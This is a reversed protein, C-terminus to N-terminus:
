ATIKGPIENAREEIMGIEHAVITATVSGIKETAIEPVIMEIRTGAVISAM